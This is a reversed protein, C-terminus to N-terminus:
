APSMNTLAKLCALQEAEKKVRHKGEGLFVFLCGFQHLHRHVAEISRFDQFTHAQAPVARPDVNIKIYVGMHFEGNFKSIEIYTPVVKFHRQILVQLRNKYNYNNSILETFDVHKEFVSEIFLQAAQFGPGTLFKCQFWKGDDNIPVKNFDLFIAGIFAEFLCGLKKLNTRMEKEEAHKSLIFWRQLGMELALKGIAENKVLAIKKETFFGENEKPFRRYLYFKTVCDLVGDGVFELTENCRKRLPLCNDPKEALQILSGPKMIYSRHVFAREYIVKNYIPMTVGYTQLIQEIEAVSIRINLPNYPDFIFTPEGNVTKQVIDMDRQLNVEAGSNSKGSSLSEIPFANCDEPSIKDQRTKMSEYMERMKVNDERNKNM